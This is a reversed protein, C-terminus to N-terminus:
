AMQREPATAGDIWSGDLLRTRRSSPIGSLNHTIQHIVMDVAAAAVQHAKQDIGSLISEASRELTVVCLDGPIRIGASQLFSYPTHSQTILADLRHQKVWDVMYKANWRQPALVTFPIRKEEPQRHNYGEIFATIAGEVRRDEFAGCLMGIRRYGLTELKKLALSVMQSNNGDVHHLQTYNRSYGLVCSAFASWELQVPMANLPSIGMIVGQVNRYRMVESLRKGGSSSYDDVLFLELRYGQSEAHLEAGEYYARRFANAMMTRRDSYSSVYAILPADKVERHARLHTMLASVLPNRTYGLDAAIAHVKQRTAEPISPHHRLAYSVTMLSVGAAEAIDKMIVRGKM